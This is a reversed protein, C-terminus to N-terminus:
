EYIKIYSYGVLELNLKLNTKELFYGDIYKTETKSFLNRKHKKINGIFNSDDDIYIPSHSYKLIHSEQNYFTCCKHRVDLNYKEKEYVLIYDCYKFSLNIERTEIITKDNTNILYFYM